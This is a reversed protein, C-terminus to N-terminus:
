GLTSLLALADALAHELTAREAETAVSARVGLQINIGDMREVRLAVPRESPLASTLSASLDATSVHGWQAPSLIVPLYVQILHQRLTVVSAAMSSNPVRIEEAGARLTTYFLTIEGVEGSYEGGAFAAARVTVFQGPRLPHAFLIVLGALIDALTAQAAIGVVVGTVAGSLALGSLEIQTQSVVTIGLLLYLVVSVVSRLSRVRGAELYDRSDAAVMTVFARIVAVGCLMAVVAVSATPWPQWHDKSAAVYHLALVL